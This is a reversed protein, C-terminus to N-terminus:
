RGDPSQNSYSELRADIAARADLTAAQLEATCAAREAEGCAQELRDAARAVRWAGIGRASGKLTHIAAAAAAPEVGGIRGLMIAAQRRFIELVERELHRDGFTMQALHEDDIPGPHHVEGAVRLGVASMVNERARTGHGLGKKGSATVDCAKASGRSNQRKAPFM